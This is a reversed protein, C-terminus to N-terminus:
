IEESAPLADNEIESNELPLRIIFTTGKGVESELDITGGHKDIIVRQCIALGQGSGKGVPKTTFFPEFIKKQIEPPIGKGTDSIRVEAWHDVRRTLITIKGKEGADKDIVEEIAHTANVIMNLIVQNFEGVVCPVLPMDSAFDTTLEALYKWENRTITTTSEIARNIDVLKKESQGPHAFEKMARVIRAVNGVGEIAQDIAKPIEEVLYDMGIEEIIADIETVLTEVAPNTKEAELLEHYKGLVRDLDQFAEQLFRNNDGVYQTPTNIEHAIGAALQGISELKQAQRLQEEMSKRETVNRIIATYMVENNLNRASYSMDLSLNSGDKHRGQVELNHGEATHLETAQSLFLHQANEKVPCVLTLPQGLIDEKTYGFIREAGPNWLAIRWQADFSVLGDVSTNVIERFKEESAKIAEEARRREAIEGQLQQNLVTQEQTRKQVRMELQENADLLAADRNQIQTLMYNFADILSGVEDHSNKVARIAYDKKDSVTRALEALRLIPGSIFTQLKLSILYAALIALLMGLLAVGISTWLMNSLATLDAQLFVTGVINNASHVKRSLCLYNDHFHWGEALVRETEPLASHIDRQYTAFPQGQADYVCALMISSDTYLGALISRADEADQFVIAAKCNEAVIRAQTDLNRVLSRRFSSQQYIIFASSALLLAFTSTLTIILTLKRKITWDWFGAM